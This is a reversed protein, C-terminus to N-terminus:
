GAISYRWPGMAIAVVPRTVQANPSTGRPRASWTAAVPAWKSCRSRSGNLGVSPSSLKMCTSRLLTPLAVPAPIDHTPAPATPGAVPGDLRAEIRRLREEMAAVRAAVTAAGADADGPATLPAVPHLAMARLEITRAHSRLALAVIFGVLGGALGGGFGQLAIAGLIFGIVIGLLWM